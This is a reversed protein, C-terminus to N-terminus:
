KKVDLMQHGFGERWLRGQVVANTQHLPRLLQHDFLVAIFISCTLGACDTTFGCTLIDVHRLPCLFGDKSALFLLFVLFVVKCLMDLECLFDACFVVKFAGLM